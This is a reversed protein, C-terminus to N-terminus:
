NWIHDITEVWDRLGGIGMLESLLVFPFLFIFLVSFTIKITFWIIKHEVWYQNIKDM